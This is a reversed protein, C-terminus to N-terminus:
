KYIFSIIVLPSNNCQVTDGPKPACKLQTKPAVSTVKNNNVTVGSCNGGTDLSM